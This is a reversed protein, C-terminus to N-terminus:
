NKSDKKLLTYVVNTNVALPFYYSLAVTSNMTLKALKNVKNLEM